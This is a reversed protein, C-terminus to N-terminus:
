TYLYDIIKWSVLSVIAIVVMNRGHFKANPNKRTYLYTGIFLGILGGSIAFVYGIILVLLSPKKSYSLKGGCECKLDYDAPNEGPQLEYYSKCKDCVLVDPDKNQLRKKLSIAFAGGVLCLIVNMLMLNFVFSTMFYLPVNDYALYGGSLFAVVGGILGAIASNFIGDRYNEGTLGTTFGAVLLTIMYTIIFLGSVHNHLLVICPLEDKFLNAILIIIIAGALIGIIKIWVSNADLHKSVNYSQISKKPHPKGSLQLKGGCECMTFDEPNEGEKLIYHGECTDCVLYDKDKLSSDSEHDMKKREVYERNSILQAILSVIKRIIVGMFGGLGGLLICIIWLIITELPQISFMKPHIALLLVPFYVFSTITAAVTGNRAGKIYSDAIWGGAVLGSIVSVLLIDVFPSLVLAILVGSLVAKFSHSNKLNSVTLKM